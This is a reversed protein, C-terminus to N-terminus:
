AAALRLADLLWNMHAAIADVNPPDLLSLHHGPVRVVDLQDGCVADWGRAVDQRDFRPDRIGGPQADRASYFVVPGELRTPRYRELARVDLYSTRQHRIIAANADADILGADVIAATMIDAQAEDDLSAMREYPLAIPKGYSLEIFEAFRLFRLGVVQADSHGPPDPLPLLTDIMALLEIEEGAAQLRLGTEYALAGGFSWGALLYPGHPQAERLLGVYREAREEVSLVGDLRDM